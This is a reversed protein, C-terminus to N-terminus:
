GRSTSKATNARDPKYFPMIVSMYMLVQPNNNGNIELKCPSLYSVIIWQKICM